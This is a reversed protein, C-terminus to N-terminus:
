HIACAICPDFSQAIRLVEVGGVSSLPGVTGAFPAGMCAAEIAGHPDKAAQTTGAPTAGVAPSGNWTTPVICQYKTIKGNAQSIHHMLAGRAAEHAGWGHTVPAHDAYKWTSTSNDLATTGTQSRLISVWNTASFTGSLGTLSPTYVGVVKQVLYLTEIARARLRDMTSRGAKLNIVWAAIPGTIFTDAHGYAAAITAHAGTTGLLTQLAALNAVVEAYTFDHTLPLSLAGAVTANQLTALGARFLVVAIDAAVMAPNLGTGKVYATYYPALAGSALAANNVFLGHVFM